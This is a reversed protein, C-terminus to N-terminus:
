FEIQFLAETNEHLSNPRVARRLRCTDLFAIHEDADSRASWLSM